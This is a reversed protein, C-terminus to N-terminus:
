YCGYQACFRFESAFAKVKKKAYAILEELDKPLKGKFVQELAKFRAEFSRLKKPPSFVLQKRTVRLKACVKKVLERLNSSTENIGARHVHSGWRGDSRRSIHKYRTQNKQASLRVIQTLPVGMQRAVWRAASPASQFGAKWFEGRRQAVYTGQERCASKSFSVYKYKKDDDPM